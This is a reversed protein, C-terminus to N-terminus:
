PKRWTRTKWTKGQQEFIVVTRARSQPKSSRLRLRENRVAVAPSEGARIRARVTDFFPGAEDGPIDTPSAIVARAGAELLAVPPELARPLLARHSGRPLLGTAMEALVRSPTAEAGTLDVRGHTQQALTWAAM